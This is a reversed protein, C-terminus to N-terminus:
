GGLSHMWLAALLNQQRVFHKFTAFISPQAGEKNLACNNESANKYNLEKLYVLKVLKDIDAFYFSFFFSFKNKVLCQIAFNILCGIEKHYRFSHRGYYPLSPNLFVTTSPTFFFQM